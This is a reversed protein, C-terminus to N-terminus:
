SRAKPCIWGCCDRCRSALHRTHLIPGRRLIFAHALCACVRDVRLVDLTLGLARPAVELLDVDSADDLQVLARQALEPRAIYPQLDEGGGGLVVDAMGRECVGHVDRLHAA